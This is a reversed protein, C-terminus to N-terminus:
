VALMQYLLEASKIMSSKHVFESKTHVREMGVGMMAVKIGHANFHNSDSGGLGVEFKPQIGTKRCAEKIFKILPEEESLMFAAYSPTVDIEVRARHEKGDVTVSFEEATKRFTDVIHDVQAKLKANDLSRAEAKIEVLNPVVNTAFEAKFTGINSTTVDNVKGLKLRSVATSAVVIASIGKEPEIGAHAELGHVKIDIASKAPAGITFTAFAEGDLALGMKSRVLSYDLNRSGAVGVEECVTLVIEIPRHSVKREKLTRLVELIVALGSKDDAGLVTSGDSKIIDGEIVPKVGKGPKVTDMHANLMLMEASSTGPLTAILNGCNGGIKEAANDFLVRAGLKELAGKLYEAIRFEEKSESDIQVLRLFEEILRDSNIM